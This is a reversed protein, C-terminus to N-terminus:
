VLYKNNSVTLAMKQQNRALQGQKDKLKRVENAFIESQKDLSQQAKLLKHDEEEKARTGSSLSTDRYKLMTNEKVKVRAFTSRSNPRPKPRIASVSQFPATPIMIVEVITLV